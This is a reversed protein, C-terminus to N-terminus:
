PSTLFLHGDIGLNNFTPVTDPSVFPGITLVTWFTTAGFPLYLFQEMLDVGTVLPIGSMYKYQATPDLIDLAWCAARANWKFQLTYTNGDPLQVQEVFPRGSQTPIEVTTAM